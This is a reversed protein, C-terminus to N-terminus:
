IEMAKSAYVQITARTREVGSPSDVDYPFIHLNDGKVHRHNIVGSFIFVVPTLDM